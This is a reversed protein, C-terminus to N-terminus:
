QLCNQRPRLFACLNRAVVQVFAAGSLWPLDASSHGILLINIAFIVTFNKSFWYGLTVSFLDNPVHCFMKFERVFQNESCRQM